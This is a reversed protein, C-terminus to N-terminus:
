DIGQQRRVAKVIAGVWQFPEALVTRGVRDQECVAMVVTVASPEGVCEIQRNVGALRPYVLEGGALTYLWKMEPIPQRSIHDRM